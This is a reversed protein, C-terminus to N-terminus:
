HQPGAPLTFRRDHAAHLDFSPVKQVTYFMEQLVTGPHHNPRWARLGDQPYIGFGRCLFLCFTQYIIRSHHDVVGFYEESSELNRSIDWELLESEDRIQSAPILPTARAAPASASNVCSSGPLM